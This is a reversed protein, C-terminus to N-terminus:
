PTRPCLTVRGLVRGVVKYEGQKYGIFALLDNARRRTTTYIILHPTPPPTM